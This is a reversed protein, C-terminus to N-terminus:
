SSIMRWIWVALAFLALLVIALAWHPIQISGSFSEGIVKSQRERKGCDGEHGRDAPSDVPPIQLVNPM